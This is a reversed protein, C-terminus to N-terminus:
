VPVPKKQLRSLFSEVFDTGTYGVFILALSDPFGTLSYLIGAIGGLLIERVAVVRDKWAYKTILVHIGGGFLGLFAPLAADKIFSLIDAM